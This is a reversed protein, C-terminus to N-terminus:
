IIHRHRLIQFAALGPLLPLWFTLLRFTLVGSVAVGAGAGIGTLGAILAAELAGLGGPTPSATAVASGVLYVLTVHAIALHAGYAQVCIVFTGIYAGLIAASVAALALARAPRRVVTRLSAIGERILGLMRRRGLPTLAVGVLAIGLAVAVLVEIRPPVRFRAATFDGLWAAVTALVTVHMFAGAVQILGISAVATPRNFAARELYRERVAAGGLGGPTARNAYAAALQVASASGIPLGTPLATSQQIAGLPYRLLSLALAVALLPWSVGLLAARIQRLETIQPLLVHVAFAGVALMLVTRWTFRSVPAASPVEVGAASTTRDRVESLLGRQAALAKRTPPTLAPPYLFAVAPALEDAPLTRAASAVAREAGVLLSLCALMEAVDRARRRTSADLEAFGLDVLWMRKEADVLVNAQKLDRHAIGAAHLASIQAWVDDLLTDSVEAPDLDDLGRAGQVSQQVMVGSGDELAGVTVVRPTRVGAQGALLTVVAEHEVAQKATVFATEDEVDRFRLRRWAKWLLDAERQERGVAKIFLEGRSSSSFFPFSSRADSIVARVRSPEFGRDALWRRVQEVTVEGGPAGLVLHLAASLAWGLAAGGLVDLPLHAGVYLRGAAVVWVVVWAARRARRPLFPGVAGAMAAAITTHGSPYALLTDVPGRVAVQALLTGPRTREVVQRVVDGVLSGAVVAVVIDLAPRLRRRALLAVLAVAAAGPLTALAMVPGLVAVAADPLDNLVRFLDAELRAVPAQRALVGGVMVVVSGAMVRLVDGPHRRLRVGGVVFARRAGPKGDAPKWPVYTQYRVM